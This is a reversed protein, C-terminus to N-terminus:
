SVSDYIFDWNAAQEPFLGVHKFATLALKMRLKMGKYKYHIPWNEPMTPANWEGAHAGKQTFIGHALKKWDKEPLVKNWIAQPEPRRLVFRGFRELKEFDGSDILEYEKWHQPTLLELKAKKKIPLS